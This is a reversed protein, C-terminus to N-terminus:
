VTGPCGSDSGGLLAGSGSDYYCAMTTVTGSPVPAPQWWIYFPDPNFTTPPIPEWSGSPPGSVGTWNNSWTSDTSSQWWGKPDCEANLLNGPGICAACGEAVAAANCLPDDLGYTSTCSDHHICCQSMFCSVIRGYPDVQCNSCGMGCAGFCNNGAGFGRQPPLSGPAPQDSASMLATRSSLATGTLIHEITNALQLVSTRNSQPLAGRATDASPFLLRKAGDLVAQLAQAAEPSSVQPPVGGRFEYLHQGSFGPRKLLVRADGSGTQSEFWYRQANVIVTGRFGGNGVSELLLTSTGPSGGATCGVLALVGSLTACFKGTKSTM